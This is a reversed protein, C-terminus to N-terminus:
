ESTDKKKFTGTRLTNGHGWHTKIAMPDWSSGSCGRVRWYLLTKLSVFAMPHFYSWFIIIWCQCAHHNYICCFGNEFLICVSNIVIYPVTFHKLYIFTKMYESGLVSCHFFFFRSFSNFLSWKKFVPIYFSYKNEYGPMLPQFGFTYVIFICWSCYFRFLISLCINFYIFGGKGKM